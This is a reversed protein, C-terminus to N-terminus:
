NALTKWKIKLTSVEEGFIEIISDGQRIFYQNGLPAPVILGKISPDDLFVEEVTETFDRFYMSLLSPFFDPTGDPETYIPNNKRLFQATKEKRKAQQKLMKRKLKAKKMSM